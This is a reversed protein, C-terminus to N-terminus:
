TCYILMSTTGSLRVVLSNLTCLRVLEDTHIDVVVIRNCHAPFQWSVVCRECERRRERAAVELEIERARARLEREVEALELAYDSEDGDAM